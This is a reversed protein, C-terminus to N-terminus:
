RILSLILWSIFQVCSAELKQLDVLVSIPNRSSITASVFGGDAIGGSGSDIGNGNGNCDELFPRFLLSFNLFEENPHGRVCEIMVRIFPCFQIGAPHPACKPLCDFSLLLFLGAQTVSGSVTQMLFSTYSLGPVFPQRARMICVPRHGTQIPSSATLQSSLM